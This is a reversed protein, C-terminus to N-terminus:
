NNRWGEQVGVVVASGSDEAVGLKEAVGRDRPNDDGQVESNVDDHVPVVELTGATDADPPLLPDSAELDNLEEDIKTRERDRVHEVTARSVIFWYAEDVIRGVGVEGRGVEGPHGVVSLAGSLLERGERTKDDKARVEHEEDGEVEGGIGLVALGRTRALGDSTHRLGRDGVSVGDSM